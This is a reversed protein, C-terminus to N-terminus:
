GGGSFTGAEPFLHTLDAVVHAYADDTLDFECYHLFHVSPSGPEDLAISSASPATKLNPAFRITKPCWGKDTRVALMYDGSQETNTIAERGIISFKYNNGTRGVFLHTPM